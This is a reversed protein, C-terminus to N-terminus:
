SQDARSALLAIAQSLGPLDPKRQQLKRYDSLISVLDSPRAHAELRTRILM